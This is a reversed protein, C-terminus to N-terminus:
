LIEAEENSVGSLKTEEKQELLILRLRQRRNERFYWLIGVLMTLSIGAWATVNVLLANYPLTGNNDHDGTAWAMEIYVNIAMLIADFTGHLLVAPLIIRGVGIRHGKQHDLEVFKRIM